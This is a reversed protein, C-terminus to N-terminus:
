EWFTARKLRSMVSDHSSGNLGGCSAPDQYKNVEEATAAVSAFQSSFDTSADGYSILVRDTNGIVKNDIREVETGNLYYVVKKETGTQYVADLTAIYEDGVNWGINQFFNGYTVRKDHVHIVNNVKDHMHVRGKPNNEYESTCAAVEEYYTFEAFEEREGNIYVAFNAHYHTEAPNVLFYRLAGFWLLGAVFGLTLYILITQNRRMFQRMTQWLSRNNGAENIRVM